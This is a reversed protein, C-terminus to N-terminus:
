FEEKFHAGQIFFGNDFGTTVPPAAAPAQASATRICMLTLAVAFGFQWFKQM